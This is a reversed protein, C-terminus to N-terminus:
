PQEPKEALPLNIGHKSFLAEIKSELVALRENEKKLQETGKEIQKVDNKTQLLMADLKANEQKLREIDAEIELTGSM